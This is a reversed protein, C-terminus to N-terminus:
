FVLQLFHLTDMCLYLCNLGLDPGGLSRSNSMHLSHQSASCLDSELSEDVVVPAMKSWSEATHASPSVHRVALLRSSGVDCRARSDVLLKMEEQLSTRRSDLDAIEEAM